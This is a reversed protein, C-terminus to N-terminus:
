FGISYYNIEKTGGYTIKLMDVSFIQPTYYKSITFLTRIYPIDDSNVNIRDSDVMFCLVKKDDDPNFHIVGDSDREAGKKGYCIFKCELVEGSELYTMKIDTNEQIEIEERLYVRIWYYIKQKEKIETRPKFDENSFDIREVDIDLLQNTLTTNLEKYKEVLSKRDIWETEQNFNM